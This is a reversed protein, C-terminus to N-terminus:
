SKRPADQRAPAAAEVPRDLLTFGAAAGLMVIWIVLMLWDSHILWSIFTDASM